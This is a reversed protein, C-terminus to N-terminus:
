IFSIWFTQNPQLQPQQQCSFKPASVQMRLTQDHSTHGNPTKADSNSLDLMHCASEKQKELISEYKRLGDLSRHGSRDQIVKEPIEANFMETVAYAHLLYNTKKGAVEAKACMRKTMSSLTNKGM